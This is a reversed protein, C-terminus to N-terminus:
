LPFMLGSTLHKLSEMSDEIKHQYTKLDVDFNDHGYLALLLQGLSQLHQHTQALLLKTAAHIANWECVSIYGHIGTKQYSETTHTSQLFIGLLSQLTNS